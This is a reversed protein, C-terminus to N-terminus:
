QRAKDVAEVSKILEERSWAVADIKGGEEPLVKVPIPIVPQPAQAYLLCLPTLILLTMKKM